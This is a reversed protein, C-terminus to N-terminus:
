RQAPVEQAALADLAEVLYGSACNEGTVSPPRDFSVAVKRGHISRSAIEIGSGVAVVIEVIATSGSQSLGDLPVVAVHLAIVVATPACLMSLLAPQDIRAPERRGIPARLEQPALPSAV